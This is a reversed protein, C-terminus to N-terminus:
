YRMAYHWAGSKQLRVVKNQKPLTETGVMPRVTRSNDMSALVLELTANFERKPHSTKNEKNVSFDISLNSNM